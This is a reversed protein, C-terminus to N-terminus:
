WNGELADDRASARGGLFCILREGPGTWRRVIVGDAEPTNEGLEHGVLGFGDSEEGEHQEGFGAPRGAGGGVSRHDAQGMLVARLPIAHMVSPCVRTRADRPRLWGPGDLDLRGNRGDLRRRWRRSL